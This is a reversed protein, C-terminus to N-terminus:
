LIYFFFTRTTTTKFSSRWNIMRVMEYLTSKRLSFTVFKGPVPELPVSTHFLNDFFRLFHSHKETKVDKASNEAFAAFNGCPRVMKKIWNPCALRGCLDFLNRTWLRYIYSLLGLVFQITTGALGDKAKSKPSKGM